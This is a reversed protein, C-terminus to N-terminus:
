SIGKIIKTVKNLCLELARPDSFPDVSIRLINKSYQGLGISKLLMSEQFVGSSCAAGAGAYIGEIDLAALILQTQLTKFVIFSTNQASKKFEGFDIILEENKLNSKFQMFISKLDHTKKEELEELAYKLSVIGHTNLTGPRLSKQQGGGHTLAKSQLDHRYFSWGIGKLAGFKHGSYTFIDGNKIDKFERIKGISQTADVHVLLKPAITKIKKIVDLDWCCGTENHVWTFNLLSKRDSHTKLIHCIEDTKFELTKDLPLRICEVGREQLSPIQKLVAAHDLDFYYFIDGSNLCGKLFINCGETAGSHFLTKYKQQLNFLSDLYDEVQHIHKLASKGLRNQSSPNAFPLEFFVGRLNESLPTSSNYDCYIV